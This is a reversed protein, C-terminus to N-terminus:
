YRCILSKHTIDDSTSTDKAIKSRGNKDSLCRVSGNIRHHVFIAVISTIIRHETFGLYM